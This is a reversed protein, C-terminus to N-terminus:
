SSAVPPPVDFTPSKNNEERKRRRRKRRRSDLTEPLTLSSCIMSKPKRDCAPQLLESNTSTGDERRFLETEVSDFCWCIEILSRKVFNKKGNRLQRKRGKCGM